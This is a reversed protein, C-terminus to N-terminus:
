MAKKKIITFTIKEWAKRRNKAPSEEKDVKFDVQLYTEKSALESVAPQLYDNMFHYWNMRSKVGMEKKVNELTDTWVGKEEGEMKNYNASIYLYLNMASTTTLKLFSQLHFATFLRKRSVGIIWMITRPVIRIYYKNNKVGYSYIINFVDLDQRDRIKVVTTHLKELTPVISGRTSIESAKIEMEFEHFENLPLLKEITELDGDQWVEWFNKPLFKNVERVILAWCRKQRVTYNIIDGISEKTAITVKKDKANM